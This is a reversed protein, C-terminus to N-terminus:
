NLSPDPPPWEMYFVTPNGSDDRDCDRILLLVGNDFQVRPPDALTAVITAGLMLEGSGPPANRIYIDM